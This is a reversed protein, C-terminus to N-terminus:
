PGTLGRGMSNQGVGDQGSRRITQPEPSIPSLPSEGLVNDGERDLFRNMKEEAQAAHNHVVYPHEACRGAHHIIEESVEL